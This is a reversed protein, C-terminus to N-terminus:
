VDPAKDLVPIRVSFTTGIGNASAFDITGGLKEVINYTVALGLGTGQGPQKTTFFPEFVRSRIDPPIGSGTDQVTVVIQGRKEEVDFALKGGNPMADLANLALNIFVQQLQDKLAYTLPLAAPPDFVV